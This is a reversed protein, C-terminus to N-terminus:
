KTLKKEADPKSNFRSIHAFSTKSKKQKEKKKQKFM